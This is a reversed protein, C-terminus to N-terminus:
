LQYGDKNFIAFPRLTKALSNIYAEDTLKEEIKGSIYNDAGIFFTVVIIVGSIITITNKYDTFFKEIKNM